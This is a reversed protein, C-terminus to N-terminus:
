SIASVPARPASWKPWSRRTSGGSLRTTGNTATTALILLIRALRQESSEFLHSVLRSRLRTVRRLVRTLLFAGFRPNDRLAHIADIKTMRVLICEALCVATAVRVDEGLLCTEGFFADTELTAMIAAKGQLSVVKIRVQGERIYYLGDAPDGQAYIVAGAKTKSTTTGGYAAAFM